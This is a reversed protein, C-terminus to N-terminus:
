RAILTKMSLALSIGPYPIGQGVEGVKVSLEVKAIRTIFMIFVRCFSADAKEEGLCSSAVQALVKSSSM